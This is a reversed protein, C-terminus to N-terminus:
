TAEPAFHCLINSIYKKLNIKCVLAIQTYLIGAHILGGQTEQTSINDGEFGICADEFNWM